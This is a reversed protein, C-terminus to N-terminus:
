DSRSTKFRLLNINLVAFTTILAYQFFFSSFFNRTYINEFNESLRSFKYLKESCSNELTSTGRLKSQLLSWFPYCFFPTYFNNYYDWLYSFNKVQFYRFRLLPFALIVQFLFLCFFSLSFFIIFSFISKLRYFLKKPFSFTIKEVM